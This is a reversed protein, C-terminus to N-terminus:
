RGDDDVYIAIWHEDPMDSPHNNSVLLRSNPPLRDSSFVGDFRRVYQAIARELEHTKM